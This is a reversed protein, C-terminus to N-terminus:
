GLEFSTVGFVKNLDIDPVENTYMRATEFVKKMNYKQVMIIAAGNIEPVDIYYPDGPKVKSILAQFLKEALDPTIAFLPGIKYGIRCKRIVGYGVLKNKYKIGLAKHSPQNIWCSIFQTRSDPFLQRDFKEFTNFPITSLDIIDKNDISNITKSGEYRINKYALKFGSRIYNDQQNVVGDLGINRDELYEIGANWIQLGYGKGRYEPKVIYFGLFGFSKGYKVVSISAVPEDNVTGILFGTSDASYFCNADFFGPNWGEAAAWDMITNLEERTMIRIQLKTNTM